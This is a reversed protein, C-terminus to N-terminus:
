SLRKSLFIQDYGDPYDTIRGIEAFGLRAYFEPAQFSHTSLFIQSCGRSRAVEEAGTMLESGLGSHRLDERVWLRSIECTGGWTHGHLGATMVGNEDRMFIGFLRGDAIKTAGVNFEHLRDGLFSMDEPVPEEVFEFEESGSLVAPERDSEALREFTSPRTRSKWAKVVAAVNEENSDISSVEFDYPALKHIVEFDARAEGIRRDGRARERRELEPLPCNVGVFFVDIGRLLTVLRRLWKETEVIHEVILNNGAGVIAPLSRHFGEFFIERLDSWVFEGSQLRETPLVSRLHDISFHWFPEDLTSQLGRALTSKGSSSAGNLLIVKGSM